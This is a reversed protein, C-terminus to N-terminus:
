SRIKVGTGRDGAQPPEMLELGYGDPDYAYIARWGVYAGHEILVPREPSLRAGSRRLGDVLGDLGEVQLALHSRGPDGEGGAPVPAGPPHHYQQLEILGGGPLVLEAWEIRTSGIGVLMDIHEWEAIGRGQLTCDLLGTWFALSREMDAVTLGLHDVARVTV